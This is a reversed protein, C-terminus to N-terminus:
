ATVEDPEMDVESETSNRGNTPLSFAQVIQSRLMPALAYYGRERAIRELEQFQAKTFRIQVPRSLEVSM